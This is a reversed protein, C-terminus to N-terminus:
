RQVGDKFEGYAKNLLKMQLEANDRDDCIDPHWQKALALYAAKVDAKADEQSIKPVDWNVVTRSGVLSSGLYTSGRVARVHEQSVGLVDWWKQNWAALYDPATEGDGFELRMQIRVWFGGPNQAYAALYTEYQKRSAKNSRKGMVAWQHWDTPPLFGFKEKFLNVATDPHLNERYCRRKETRLFQIRECGIPDFWEKLMYMSADFLDGQGDDDEGQGFEYGCECAQAFISLEAGCSPCDKIMNAPEDSRKKPRPESIDYDHYSMPDGHGGGKGDDLNGGFDLLYFCDKELPEPGQWLARDKDTIPRCGRWVAQFFASKSKTAFTIIISAICPRDYGKRQTNVSCIVQIRGSALGLDHDNRTKVPTSGSQYDSIIGNATFRESQAKAQAITSCFCITPQGPSIRLWNDVVAQLGEPRMAQKGMAADSYDGDEQTGITSLDLLGKLSFTRCPALWGAKIAEPPQLSEVKADYWRGLWEERSMRWPSATLGLFVCKDDTSYTDVLTQYIKQGVGDHAEDLVFMGVKGLMKRLYEGGDHAELIAKRDPIAAMMRVTMPTLPSEGLVGALVIAMDLAQMVKPDRDHWSRLTQLSAVMCPHDWKVKRSGQIISCDVGIDTLTKHAQELLCNREVLFISRAPNKARISRDRMIWAATLSKGMGGTAIILVSRSGDRYLKYVDKKISEQYPRLTWEKAAPTEVIAVTPLLKLQPKALTLSKM